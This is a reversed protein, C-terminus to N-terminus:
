YQYPYKKSISFVTGWQALFPFELDTELDKRNQLSDILPILRRCFTLVLNQKQEYSNKVFLSTIGPPSSPVRIIYRDPENHSVM